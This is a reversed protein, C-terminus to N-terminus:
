KLAAAVADQKAKPLTALFQAKLTGTVDFQQGYTAALDQVRQNFYAADTALDCVAPAMAACYATRAATIGALANADTVTVTFSAASAASAVFMSAALLSFM